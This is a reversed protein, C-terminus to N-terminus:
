SCGTTACSFDASAGWDYFRGADDHYTDHDTNGSFDTDSVQVGSFYTLFLGGGLFNAVNSSIESTSLSVESAYLYLGGGANASGGSVESDSLTASSSDLYLGGGEDAAANDAFASSSLVADSTTAWLGAGDVATNDSVRTDSLTASSGLLWLGGGDVSADNYAIVSDTLTAQSYEIFLGGGSEAVNDSLYLGSIEASSDNVIFLGGGYGEAENHLIRTDEISASGGEYVVGGGGYLAANDAIEVDSLALAGRYVFLGGGHTATNDAILADRLEVESSDLFLGGGCLLEGFCPTGTGRELTLGSIELGTVGIAHIVSDSASRLTTRDPGAGVISIDDGTVTYSLDWAGRCFRLEGPSYLEFTGSLDSVDVINGNDDFFTGVGDESAETWGGMSSDNQKGDCLEPAGPFVTPDSDDSDGGAETWGDGDVDLEPEPEPEPEDDESDGPPTPESEDDESDGSPAPEAGDSDELTFDSIRTDEDPEDVGSDLMCAPLSLLVITFLASRCTTSM